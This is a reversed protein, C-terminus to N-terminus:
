SCRKELMSIYGNSLGCKLAFQRQSLDHESRYKRIFEGLTM